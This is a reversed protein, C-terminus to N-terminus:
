CKHFYSVIYNRKKQKLFNYNEQSLKINWCKRESTWSAIKKKSLTLLWCILAPMSAWPWFSILTKRTGIVNHVLLTHFLFPFHFWWGSCIKLTSTWKALTSLLTSLCHEAFTLAWHKRFLLHSKTIAYEM